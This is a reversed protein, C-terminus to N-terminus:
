SQWDTLIKKYADKTNAGVTREVEKGDKFHVLTPTSEIKYDNWGEEFELINYQEIDVGVEEAAPMLEPTARQCHSCEPSFFYVILDEKNNLKEELEDPLIINQYNPNDLLEITSARLESKGYVNDEAKKNNQYTTIFGLAAFLLVIIGGFILIKKM